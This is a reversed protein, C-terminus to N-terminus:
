DDPILTDKSVEGQSPDVKPKEVADASAAIVIVSVNDTGGNDIAADVLKEATEDVGVALGVIDSIQEDDVEDSLGDSCLVIMQNNYLVGQKISVDPLTVEAAGLNQYIINKRPHTRAEAQTIQGSDILMQVMSHDKSLRSIGEDWLYARSDGVWALTYKNDHMQVAVVTTGMGSKGLGTEVGKLIAIHAQEVAEVLSSGQMVQQEITSVAIQSAVEGSAHGGMGDAVMFLGLDTNVCYCDENHERIKGVDTRAAYNFAQSTDLNMPM